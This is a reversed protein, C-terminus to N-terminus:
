NKEDTKTKTFLQKIQMYFHHSYYWVASVTYLIVIFIITGTFITFYEPYYLYIRQTIAITIFFQLLFPIKSEKKMQRVRNKNRIDNLKNQTEAM